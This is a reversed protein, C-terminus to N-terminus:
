SSTLYIYRYAAGALQVLKVKPPLGTKVAALLKQLDFAIM